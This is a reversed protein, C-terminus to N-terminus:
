KIKEVKIASVKFEPIGSLPDFATQTLVNAATESFHMSIFMLGQKVRDTIEVKPTISGRRSIARVIEGDKIGLKAADQPHIELLGCPALENLGEVRRTMTAGHYHYLIRGTTLMFPYEEDPLEAAPKYEVPTFKGLG